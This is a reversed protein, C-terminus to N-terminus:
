LRHSGREAARECVVAICGVGETHGSHVVPRVPTGRGL